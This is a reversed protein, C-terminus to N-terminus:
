SLVPFDEPDCYLHHYYFRYFNKPKFSLQAIQLVIYNQTINRNDNFIKQTENFLNDLLLVKSKQVSPLQIADAVVANVHNTHFESVLEYQSSRNAQRDPKDNFTSFISLFIVFIIASGLSNIIDGKNHVM